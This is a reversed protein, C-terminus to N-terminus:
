NGARERFESALEQRQKPTLLRHVELATDTVKHAFARVADIR